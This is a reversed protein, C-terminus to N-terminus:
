AHDRPLTQKVVSSATKNNSTKNISSSDQGSENRLSSMAGSVRAFPLPKGEALAATDGELVERPLRGVAAAQAKGSQDLFVFHPIGKVGYEIMEPTWQTNEVNLFVFNVM